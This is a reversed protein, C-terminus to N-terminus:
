YISSRSYRWGASGVIANQWFRGAVELARGFLSFRESASGNEVIRHTVPLGLSTAPQRSSMILPSATRMKPNKRPM